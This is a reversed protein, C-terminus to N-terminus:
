VYIFQMIMAALLILSALIIITPVLATKGARSEQSGRTRLHNEAARQYDRQVAKVAMDSIIPNPNM